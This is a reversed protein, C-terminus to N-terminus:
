LVDYPSDPDKDCGIEPNWGELVNLIMSVYTM